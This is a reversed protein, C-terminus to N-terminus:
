KWKISCGMPNTNTVPAPGGALVAKIANRLDHSKADAPAKWNDDVRGEYALKRAADFVFVHPTCVAGYARAVAQTEDYLYPFPYGKQAARIKMNEFSDAPYTKADNPSIAVFAVGKPGFEGALAMFRDEYAQAYPCHNCTFNVVLVSSEGFSALTWEKGDTGPLSFDPAQAGIRLTEPGSKTILVM